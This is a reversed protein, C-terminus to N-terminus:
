GRRNITPRKTVPKKPAPKEVKEEEESAEKEPSEENEDDSDDVPPEQNDETPTEPEQIGNGQDKETDGEGLVGKEVEYGPIAELVDAIEDEVEAKGQEDFFVKNRLVIIAEPFEGFLKKVNKM